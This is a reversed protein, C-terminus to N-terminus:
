FSDFGISPNCGFAVQNVIEQASKTTEGAAFFEGENNALAGFNAKKSKASFM